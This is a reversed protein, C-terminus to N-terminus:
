RACRQFAPLHKEQSANMLNTFVSTIDSYKSVKPLLESKYLNANEIEANVGIKCVESLTNPISLSIKEPEPIKLGYKDYIAKLSSIHQEEARVIMSFPKVSGFKDITLEYLAKAKYEDQIAKYLADQIEKSLEDAPYNLGDVALCDDSLCNGKNIQSQKGNQNEQNIQNNDINNKIGIVGGGILTGLLLSIITIKNIM